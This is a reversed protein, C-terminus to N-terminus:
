MDKGCYDCIVYLVEKNRYYSLAADRYSADTRYRLNKSELNKLEHKPNNKCYANHYERCKVCLKYPVGKLSTSWESLPARFSCRICKKDIESM